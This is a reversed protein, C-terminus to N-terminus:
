RVATNEVTKLMRLPIAPSVVLDFSIIRRIQKRKTAGIDDTLKYSAMKDCRTCIVNRTSFAVTLDMNERRGSLECPATAFVFLDFPPLKNAPQSHLSNLPSQVTKMNDNKEDSAIEFEYKHKQHKQTRRM